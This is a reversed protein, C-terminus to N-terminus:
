WLTSAWSSLVVFISNCSIFLSSSFIHPFNSLTFVTGGMMSFVSGNSAFGYLWIASFQAVAAAYGLKQRLLNMEVTVCSDHLLYEVDRPGISNCRKRSGQITSTPPVASSQLQNKGAGEEQGGDLTGSTLSSFNVSKTTPLHIPFETTPFHVPMGAAAIFAFKKIKQVKDNNIWNRVRLRPLMKFM